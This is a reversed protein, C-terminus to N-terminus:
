DIFKINPLEGREAKKITEMANDVQHNTDNTYELFEEYDSYTTYIKNFEEHSFAEPESKSKANIIRHQFDLIRNRYEEKIQKCTFESLKDTSAKLELLQVLSNDYIQARERTWEINANVEAIWENRRAINDEAYHSNVAQLTNEVQNLLTVIDNLRDLNQERLRKKARAEKIVRRLKLIKPAAKGSIEIIEGLIQLIIFLVGIAAVVAAPVGWTGLSKIIEAM